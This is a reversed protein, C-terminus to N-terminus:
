RALKHFAGQLAFRGAQGRGPLSMMSLVFPGLLM